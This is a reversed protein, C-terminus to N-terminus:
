RLSLWVESCGKKMGEHQSNKEIMMDASRRVRLRDSELLIGL